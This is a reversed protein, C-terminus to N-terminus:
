SKNRLSTLSGHRRAAQRSPQTSAGRRVRWFASLNPASESLVLGHSEPLCMPDADPEVQLPPPAHLSLKSMLSYSRSPSGFTVPNGRTPSGPTVPASLKSLLLSARAPSGPTVPPSMPIVIPPAVTLISVGRTGLRNPSASRFHAQRYKEAREIMSMNKRDPNAMHEPLDKLKGKNRQAVSVFNKFSKTPKVISAHEFSSPKTEFAADNATELHLGQQLLPQMARQLQGRATSPLAAAAALSVAPGALPLPWRQTPSFTPMQTGGYKNPVRAKGPLPRRASRPPSPM